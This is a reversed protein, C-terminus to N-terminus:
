QPNGKKQFPNYWQANNMTIIAFGQKVLSGGQQASTIHSVYQPNYFRNPGVTVMPVGAKAMETNITPNPVRAWGAPVGPPNSSQVPNPNSTPSPTAPTPVPLSPAAPASPTLPAAPAPTNDTDTVNVFTPGSQTYGMPEAGVTLNSVPVTGLNSSGQNTAQATQQNMSNRKKWISYGAILAIGGGVWAWTPLPGMKDTLTQGMTEPM